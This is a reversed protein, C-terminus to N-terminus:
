RKYEESLKLLFKGKLKTEIIHLGVFQNIIM